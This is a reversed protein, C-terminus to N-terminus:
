ENSSDKSAPITAAQKSQYTAHILSDLEPTGHHLQL